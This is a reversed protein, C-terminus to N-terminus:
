ASRSRPNKKKKLTRYDWLFAGAIDANGNPCKSSIEKALWETELLELLELGQKTFREDGLLNGVKM